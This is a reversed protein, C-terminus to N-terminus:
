KLCCHDEYLYLLLILYFTTQGSVVGGRVCPRLTGLDHAHKKKPMLWRGISMVMKALIVRKAM